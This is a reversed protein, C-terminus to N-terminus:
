VNEAGAERHAVELLHDPRGLGQQAVGEGVGKVQELAEGGAPGPEVQAHRGTLLQQALQTAARCM